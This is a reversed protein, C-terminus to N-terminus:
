SIDDDDDPKNTYANLTKGRFYSEVRNCIAAIHHVAHEEIAIQILSVGETVPFIAYQTIGNKVFESKFKEIKNNDTTIGVETKM